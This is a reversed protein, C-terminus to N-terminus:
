RDGTCPEPEAAAAAEPEAQAEEAGVSINTYLSLNYLSYIVTGQSLFLIFFTLAIIRLM